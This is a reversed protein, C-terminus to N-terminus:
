SSILISLTDYLLILTFNIGVAYGKFAMQVHTIHHSRHYLCKNVLRAMQTQYTPGMISYAMHSRCTTKQGGCERQSM